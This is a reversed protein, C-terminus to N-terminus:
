SVITLNATIGLSFCQFSHPIDGGVLWRSSNVTASGGDIQRLSEIMELITTKGAGNPGLIGFVEVIPKTM